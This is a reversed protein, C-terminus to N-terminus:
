KEGKILKLLKALIRHRKENINSQSLGCEKAIESDTKGEQYYEKILKQESPKLRSSYKKISELLIKKEVQEAVDHEDNSLIDAHMTGDHISDVLEDLSVVEVRNKKNYGHNPQWVMEKMVERCLYFYRRDEKSMELLYQNFPYFFRGAYEEKFKGNEIVADVPVEVYAGNELVFCAIIKKIKYGGNRNM